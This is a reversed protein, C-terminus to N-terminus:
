GGVSTIIGSTVGSGPISARLAELRLAEEDELRRAERAERAMQHYEPTFNGDRILGVCVLHAMKLIDDETMGSQEMLLIATEFAMLISPTASKQQHRPAPPAFKPLGMYHREINKINIVHLGSGFVGLYM